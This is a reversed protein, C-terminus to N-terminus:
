ACTPELPNNISQTYIISWLTILSGSQIRNNNDAFKRTSSVFQINAVQGGLTHNQGFLFLLDDLNENMKSIISRKTNTENGINHLKSEIQYIAQQTYGYQSLQFETNNIPEYQEITYNVAKNDNNLSLNLVEDYLQIQGVKTNYTYGTPQLSGNITNLFEIIKNEINDLRSSM